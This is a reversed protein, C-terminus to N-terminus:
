ERFYNHQQLFRKAVLEPEINNNDVQYNLKQMTKVNIKGDLRHLLPKLEPHQRLIKRTAVPSANYPPFFHQDDQLVKLNYSRIRGDTSYGLVSAMKGVSVADYVLGIQMPYVRKFKFRYFKTFDQYGDGPRNMWSTDVGAKMKPAVKALDSIKKLGYKKATAQTVMFAYTDSFGYSPFRIEGFRKALQTNVIKTARAPNKVAPQALIGTLDTGSYSAAIVDANDRQLAKHPMTGTGLNNLITADSKTEHKILQAIINALIQTETTSDSAIRIANTKTDPLGPLSCGSVLFVLCLLSILLQSAKKHM